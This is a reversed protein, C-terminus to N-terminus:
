RGLEGVISRHVFSVWLPLFFVAAGVYFLAIWNNIWMMLGSRTIIAKFSGREM